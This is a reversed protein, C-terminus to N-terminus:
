VNCEDCGRGPEAPGGPVLRRGGGGPVWGDVGCLRAQQVGNRNFEQGDKLLHWAPTGVWSLRIKRRNQRPIPGAYTRIRPHSDEYVQREVCTRRNNKPLEVISPES